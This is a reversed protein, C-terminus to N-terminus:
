RIDQGSECAHNPKAQVVSVTDDKEVLKFHEEQNSQLLTSLEIYKEAWIKGKFKSEVGIGLPRSINQKTPNPSVTGTLVQLALSQLSAMTPASTTSPQSVESPQTATRTPAEAQTAQILSAIPRNEARNNAAHAGPTSAKMEQVTSRVVTKLEQRICDRITNIM